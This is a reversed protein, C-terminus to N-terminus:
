SKVMKKRLDNEFFKIIECSNSPFPIYSSNIVSAFQPGQWIDTVASKQSFPQRSFVM